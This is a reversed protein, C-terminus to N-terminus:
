EGVAEITFDESHFKSYYRGQQAIFKLVCYDPDSVGLPYYMDDGERWIMDKSSQDELVEFNGILMVGRFFRQDCFYISGKPNNRFQSVRLSSTNTTLYFTHIGERVRPAYMAKINPFGTEDMSAVYAIKQKDILNGITKEKDRMM